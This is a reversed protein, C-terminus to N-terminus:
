VEETDETGETTFLEEEAGETTFLEGETGEVARFCPHPARM